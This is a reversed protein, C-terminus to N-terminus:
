LLHRTTRSMGEARTGSVSCITWNQNCVAQVRSGFHTETNIKKSTAMKTRNAGLTTLACRMAALPRLGVYRCVAALPTRDYVFIGEPPSEFVAREHRTSPGRASVTFQLCTTIVFVQVAWEKGRPWSHAQPLRLFTAQIQIMKGTCVM